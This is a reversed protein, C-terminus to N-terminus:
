CGRRETLGLCAEAVERQKPALAKESRALHTRSEAEFVQLETSNTRWPSLTKLENEAAEVELVKEQLARSMQWANETLEQRMLTYRETESKWFTYEEHYHRQTTNQAAELRTRLTNLKGVELRLRHVDESEEREVEMESEMREEEAGLLMCSEGLKIEEEELSAMTEALCEELGDQCDKELSAELKRIESVERKTHGFRTRIDNVDSDMVSKMQRKAALEQLKMQCNEHKMELSEIQQQQQVEKQQLKQYSVLLAVLEAVNLALDELDGEDVHVDGVGSLGSSAFEGTEGRGKLNGKLQDNRIQLRRCSIRQQILSVLLQVNQRQIPLMGDRLSLPLFNEVAFDM